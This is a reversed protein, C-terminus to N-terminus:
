AEAVAPAFGAFVERYAPDREILEAHPGHTVLVGEDLVAVTDFLDLCEARHTVVITTRGRRSALVAALVADAASPDLGETPEDLLLLPPDALLARTLLLRQRQGGSLGHGGEGVVTDWGEPLAHIVPLLGARAAASELAAQDADPRALLLNARVTTHFVHADQTMSRSKPATVSGETPARHGALVDLLTSKGAGSAGVVATSSGPEVHLDLGALAHRTGGPYRAWLGAVAVGSSPPAAPRSPAAAPTRLLAAVRRTSPLLEVFRHAADVLPGFMEFAALTTLALVAVLVEDAGSRLAVFAVLVTTAGQALLGAASATTTVAAARRELAAVRALRRDAEADARDTAGFAALERAGDVLDLAHEALAARARAVRAGARRLASAACLPIVIGALVLGATLPWAAAPLLVLFVVISGGGVAAASIAPLLVRLLLDQVGDVDAVMTTLADGDRRGAGRVVAQYVRSRLRAVARLAVDHGALREVYRFGGRFIAFARVAVIVTGLAALPPQEAARTILWAATGTLAVACVEAVIGAAAAFLLRWSRAARLIEIM